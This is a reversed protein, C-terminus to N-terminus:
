LLGKEVAGNDPAAVPALPWIQKLRQSPDEGSLRIFEMYSKLVRKTYARTEDYPISEIFEDLEAPLSGAWRAAANPGANYGAISLVIDNDFRKLLHGLYWSGLEINIDPNLLESLRFGRKGLEGAIFRGTSPMIQMLGMAGVPSVANPNFHSEERMVAAVLYPDAAGSAPAKRKVMEVLKLPFAISLIEKDQRVSSFHLRYIRLARYYDEADYLLGAFELLAPKEKSYRKSLLDVEEAAETTLGLGLLEMAARYRADGTLFEKGARAGVPPPGEILGAEAGPDPGAGNEEINGEPDRQYQLRQGAMLCYYTQTSNGCVSEYADSAEKFRGLREASRGAWYTFQNLLRGRPMVEQYVTFNEYAEDYRGSRYATWGLTWYADEASPSERFEDLVTRYANLAGEPNKGDYYRGILILAKAREDSGPFKASLQKEADLLGAERGQRVSSLAYWYLAEAEKRAGPKSLYGKLIKEARDYKKLRINAVATKLLAKDSFENKEKVLESYENLATRYRAADFLKDARMMREKPSLTIIDVGASKLGLLMEHAEVAAKNAPFRVYLDKLLRLAESHRNLAFSSRASKFIADALSSSKPYAEIFGDFENKAGTFDGSDFLASAKRFRAKERLSSDAYLSIIFDYAGAAEIYRGEAELAQGQYFLIYDDIDPVGAADEILISAGERRGELAMLGLVLSARKAWLTEPSLALVETLKKRAEEFQGLKKAELATKFLEEPRNGEIVEPTTRGEEPPFVLHDQTEILTANAPASVFILLSPILVSALARLNHLNRNHDNM